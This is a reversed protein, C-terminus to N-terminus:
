PNHMDRFAKELRELRGQMDKLTEALDREAKDRAKEADDLKLQLEKAKQGSESGSALSNHLEDALKAMDARLLDAADRAKKAEEGAAKVREESDALAKELAAIRAETSASKAEDTAIKTEAGGIRTEHADLRKGHVEIEKTHEALIDTHKELTVDHAALREEHRAIQSRSAGWWYGAGLITFIGLLPVTWGGWRRESM